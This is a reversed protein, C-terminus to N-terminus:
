DAVEDPLVRDSASNILGAILAYFFVMARRETSRGHDRDQFPVDM